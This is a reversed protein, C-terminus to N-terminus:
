RTTGADFLTTGTTAQTEGRLQDTTSEGVNVKERDMLMQTIVANVEHAQEITMDALRTVKKFKGDCDSIDAFIEGAGSKDGAYKVLKDMIIPALEELTEANEEDVLSDEGRDKQEGAESQDKGADLKGDEPDEIDLLKLIVGGEAKGVADREAFKIKDLHNKLLQFQVKNNKIRPWGDEGIEVEEPTPQYLIQEPYDNGQRSTKMKGTYVKIGNAIADFTMSVLLHSFVHVVVSEATREPNEKTGKWGRVKAWASDKNKGYEIVETSIGADRAWQRIIRVTPAKKGGVTYIDRTTFRLLDHKAKQPDIPEPEQYQRAPVQGKPVTTLRQEAM